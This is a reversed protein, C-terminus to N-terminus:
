RLPEARCVINGKGEVLRGRALLKELAANARASVVDVDCGHYKGGLQSAASSAAALLAERHAAAGDFQALSSLLVRRMKQPPVAGAVVNARPATTAGTAAGEEDTSELCIAPTRPRKTGSSTVAHAPARAIGEASIREFLNALTEEDRVGPLSNRAFNIFKPLKRPVNPLEALLALLERARSGIPAAAAARETQAAWLAQPDVAAGGGGRKNGGERYLAGQYKQAESICTTHTRASASSFDSNCDCCCLTGGCCRSHSELNKM